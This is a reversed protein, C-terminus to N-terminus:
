DGGRGDDSLDGLDGHATDCGSDLIAVTGSWDKGLLWPESEAATVGIQVRSSDLAPIGNRDLFIKGDPGAGLLAVLGKENVALVQVGGWADLDHIVDARGATAATGVASKLARGGGLCVLRVGGSEWIGDAPVTGGPFDALDPSDKATGRSDAARRLDEWLIEGERWRDLLDEIGNGDADLWQEFRQSSTIGADSPAALSSVVAAPSSGALVLLMLAFRIRHPLGLRCSFAARPAQRVICADTGQHRAKVTRDSLM